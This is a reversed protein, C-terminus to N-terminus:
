STPKRKRKRKPKKEPATPTALAEVYKDLDKASIEEAREVLSLWYQDQINNAQRHDYLVQYPNIILIFQYPGKPGPQVMIFNLAELQKIRDRWTYVRREGTFGAETALEYENEVIVVGTDWVRCWLGFYTTSVRKNKEALMDAITGVLTLTRPITSFGDSGIRNWNKDEPVYPWLDLRRRKAREKIRQKRTQTQKATAM